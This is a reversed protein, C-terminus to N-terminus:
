LFKFYPGPILIRSEPSKCIKLWGEKIIANGNFRNGHKKLKHKASIGHKLLHSEISYRFFLSFVLVLILFKM